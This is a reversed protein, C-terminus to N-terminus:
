EMIGMNGGHVVTAEMKKGVIGIYGLISCFSSFDKDSPRGSSVKSFEWTMYPSAGCEFEAQQM